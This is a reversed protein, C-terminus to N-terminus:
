RLKPREAKESVIKLEGNEFSYEFFFVDGDKRVGIIPGKKDWVKYEISDGFRSKLYEETKVYLPEYMKDNPISVVNDLTKHNTLNKIIQWGLYDNENLIPVFGMDLYVKVALWTHTQTHLFTGKHGLEKMKLLAMSVLPKSLGKGQYEKKVSVWHVYGTIDGIPYDAYFATATAVKEGENNEIFICRKKLEEYCHGYYYNFAEIGEDFSLFEGSSVEIDVWNKEDGDQFLVFRFGEPLSMVPIDDLGRVLLLDVYKLTRNISEMYDSGYDNLSKNIIINM